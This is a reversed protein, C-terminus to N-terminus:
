MCANIHHTHLKWHRHSVALTWKQAVQECVTHKFRICCICQQDERQMCTWHVTCEEYGTCIFLVLETWHHQWASVFWVRGTLKRPGHMCQWSWEYMCHTAPRLTSLTGLGGESVSGMWVSCYLHGYKHTGNRKLYREVQMQAYGQVTM